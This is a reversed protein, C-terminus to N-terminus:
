FAGAGLSIQRSPGPVAPGAELARPEQSPLCSAPPPPQEPHGSLSRFTLWLGPTQTGATRGASASSKQAQTAERPTPPGDEWEPAPDCDRAQTEPRARSPALHHCPSRKIPRKKLAPRNTAERLHGVLAPSRTQLGPAHGQSSCFGPGKLGRTATADKPSGKAGLGDLNPRHMFPCTPEPGKPHGWSWGPSCIRHTGTLDNLLRLESDAAAAEGPVRLLADRRIPLWAGRQGSPLGQVECTLCGAPPAGGKAQSTDSEESSGAQTTWPPDSGSGTLDLPGQFHTLEFGEALAPFAIGM